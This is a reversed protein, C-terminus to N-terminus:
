RSADAAGLIAQISQRDIVMPMMMAQQHSIREELARAIRHGRIHREGLLLFARCWALRVASSFHFLGGVSAVETL